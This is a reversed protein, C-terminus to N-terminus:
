LHRIDLVGVWFFPCIHIVIFGRGCAYQYFLFYIKIRENRSEFLGLFYVNVSLLIGPFGGM